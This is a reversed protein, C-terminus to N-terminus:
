FSMQLLITKVFLSLSIAKKICKVRVYFFVSFFTLNDTLVRRLIKYCLKAITSKCWISANIFLHIIKKPM